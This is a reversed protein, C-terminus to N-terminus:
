RTIMVNYTGYPSVATGTITTSGPNRILTGDAARSITGNFALNLTVDGMLDHTMHFTQVFTGTLTGTAASGAVPINRLDFNLTRAGNAMANYVIVVVGADDNTPFDDQYDVFDTSLRMGKNDSSGQDVQGNVTLTGGTTAVGDGTTMQQPINASSAMNFGQMGLNLAKEVARDLGFYARRASEENNVSGNGCASAAIAFAITTGLLFTRRTSTLANM